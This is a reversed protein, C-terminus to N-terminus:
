SIEIIEGQNWKNLDWEDGGVVVVWEGCVEEGVGLFVQKRYQFYTKCHIRFIM